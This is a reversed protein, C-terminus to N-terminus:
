QEMKLKLLYDYFYKTNNNIFIIFYMNGVQTQVSKSDCIDTHTLDLSETNREISQFM